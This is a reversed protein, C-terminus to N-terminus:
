FDNERIPLKAKIEDSLRYIITLSGSTQNNEGTPDIYPSYRKVFNIDVGNRDEWVIVKTYLVIQFISLEDGVKASDIFDPSGYKDQLDALLQSEIETYAIYNWDYVSEGLGLYAMNRDEGDVYKQIVSLKDAVLIRIESILTDSQIAYPILYYDQFENIKRINFVGDRTRLLKKNEILSEIYKNYNSISSGLKMGLFVEREHNENCSVLIILFCICVALAKLNIM